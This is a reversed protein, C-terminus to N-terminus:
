DNRERRREHHDVLWALLLGLLAVLGTAILAIYDVIPSPTITIQALSTQFPLVPASPRTYRRAPVRAAPAHSRLRALARM